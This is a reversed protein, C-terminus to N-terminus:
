WAKIAKLVQSAASQDHYSIRVLYMGQAMLDLGRFPMMNNYGANVRINEQSYLMKGTADFIDLRIAQDAESYFSLVSHQNFPNPFLVLPEETPDFDNKLLRDALAFDAIGYGYLTDPYLFRSASRIIARRIMEATREPHKQWLCAVLGAIIPSAFSTGGVRGLSGTPTEVIVMSGQAMVEPKIRGDAAPGLSSFPVRVGMSDVAGVSLAGFSDAPSGIYQWQGNGYNGASNVVLIGKEFAMNAARTIVTTRGNLDQYSHNQTPDDFSTYGLSSNIIDAGASDAYEAGALWNYEEILFESAPDETQLLLYDAEPATGVMAPLVTAMVSLVLTGHNHGLFFNEDPDVFDHFGAIRGNQWLHDLGQMQDVRLFGADLVAIMKGDGWYGDKHLAQGNIMEIQNRSLGYDPDSFSLDTTYGSVSGNKLDNGGSPNPHNNDECSDPLHHHRMHSFSSNVAPKVYTVQEVFPLLRIREVSAPQPAEILVGNFWRSTYFVAVEPDELLTQIYQPNVPLDNEDPLIGQRNRRDIARQSLFAQPRTIEFPTGQKDTFSVWYKLPVFEQGLGAPLQGLFLFWCVIFTLANRQM